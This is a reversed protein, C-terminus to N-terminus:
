LSSYGFEHIWPMLRTKYQELNEEYHKWRYSSTKYLPKIVQSFSPTKIIGRTLATEQYSRLEEEWELDLFALLKSVNPKFDLVLDEYRIRHTKLSYREESLKLITMAIDYFDAIRELEIMNAMSPNLKFNQMWCSLVCDLPHRLAIIYKANPFIQNILPLQLINLPLKDLLTQKKVIEIHKELEGFYFGSAIEAETNDMSEIMSITPIGGFSANIKQIMPLEELVDINSHTRLITDLLTTGSRPFGILFTPQIWRPKIVSKYASQEQLKQIQIVKERQQIFYKEPEQKKYELSDKIYKNKSKYSEFAANYNKKHHYLDGKLKMLAPQRKDMLENINIEKILEAAIEYNEKRFEILAEYYLFDSKKELIKRSESRIFSLLEDARNMKELLECLNLQAETYDPKLAIAQRFSVEAGELRTLEQLTVGLNSYAEFYDPKCAIAQRYSTEADDLRGLEQLTNGLNYHAEAFKPKLAIAQSYSVAAENLRGLKQLTNGFNSHAEAYDPKLAIAQAYSVAAEDLRGLEQLTNGFNSHAEAYDPKLAIAQRFSTEADDLRGLEQLTNGLNYFAEAFEPKLAIAQRFSTEADDLRGLEQLTNGLNYHAVADQPALKVSKRLATLSDIVRGTQKFVASLVTWAFQYKPFEQTISKALKEADDYRGNQYHELLNKIESESPSISKLNQKKEKTQKKQEASKKRKQSLSLSKNQVDLKPENVQLTPPLQTELINLKEEAVSKVKAQDIVLKANKFKKEKILADIYSLWFQEIKPNAELATKFLPLAADAKNVSVALVGLNHNADPHLPQSQLIARYLREADQLKGEKHAAVGQQLAQEVTLEM